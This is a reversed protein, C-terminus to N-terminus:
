RNRRNNRRRRQKYKGLRPKFRSRKTANNLLHIAGETADPADDKGNGGFGMFQLILIQTDKCKRLKEDITFLGREFYPSINEIRVSKNPKARKDSRLPIAQEQIDAEADFEVRLDEQIFVSEMWYTSFEGFIEFADYFAVVMSHISAQRVWCWLLYYKKGKKGITVIAKFDSKKNERFSPDCYTCISDYEKIDLVKGFKFWSYKYILGAIIWEHFFERRSSTYGMKAFKRKLMEFTYRGWAPVGSDFGAKEHTIPDEIAYVKSHFIGERKPDGEDIDGVLHALISYKGIRNGGVMVRSARTDLAGIFDESVWDVANKVLETNKIIKKDDIDDIIGVNPRLNAKRSGRPSQGRGYAWFGIGDKTMFHGSQWSGLNVQEGFDDTFLQNGELEAQLDSLLGTAKDNNSSGLLLGTLEGTALLFMVIFIDLLVSKAHERPWEAIAYCDENDIVYQAFEKHFYAFDHDMYRAFYYKCFLVFNGKLRKIRKEKAEQTEKKKPKTQKKIDSVLKLYKESALQDEKSRRM